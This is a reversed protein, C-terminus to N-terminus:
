SSPERPSTAPYDPFREPRDAAPPGLIEQLLVARRLASRKHSQLQQRVALADRSLTRRPANLVDQESRARSSPDTGFGAHARHVRHLEVPRRPIAEVEVPPPSPKPAPQRGRALGSIEQWIDAPIMGESTKPSTRAGGGYGPQSSGEGRLGVPEEDAKYRDDYSGGADYTAVEAEDAEEDEEWTWEQPLRSTEDPTGARKKKRTRAISDIISFIIIIAFFILEEM